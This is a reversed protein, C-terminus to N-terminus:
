SNQGIPVATILCARSRLATAPQHCAQVGIAELFEKSWSYYLSAGFIQPPGTQQSLKAAQSLHILNTKVGGTAGDNRRYC